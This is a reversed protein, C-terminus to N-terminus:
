GSPPRLAPIKIIRALVKKPDLAPEPGLDSGSSLVSGGATGTNPRRPGARILFSSFFYRTKNFHKLLILVNTFFKLFQYFEFIRPHSVYIILLKLNAKKIM